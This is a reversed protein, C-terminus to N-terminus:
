KRAGETALWHVATRRLGEDVSIPPSWGLLEKTKGIDVELSGCLRQATDRKGLLAAGMQLLRVPVPILRAPRGLAEGM